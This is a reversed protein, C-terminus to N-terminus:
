GAHNRWDSPPADRETLVADMPIDHPQPFITKLVSFEYGIGIVMPRQRLSALTRDFYGGGYGLRYNTRDFGVLPALMLDPFVVDRRAPIPINWIGRALSEGQTWRWYELPAKPTVVVPLCLVLNERRAMENAWSLLNIEHRIPWYLGVAPSHRTAVIDDLKGAIIEAARHRADPPITRRMALLTARQQRRWSAVTPDM